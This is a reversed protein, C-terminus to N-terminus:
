MPLVNTPRHMCGETLYKCNPSSLKIINIMFRIVYKTCDLLILGQWCTDRTLEIKNM